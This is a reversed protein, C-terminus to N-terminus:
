FGGGGSWGELLGADYLLKPGADLGGAPGRLALRDLSSLSFQRGM